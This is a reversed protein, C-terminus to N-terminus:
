LEWGIASKLVYDTTGADTAPQNDFNLKFELKFYLDFPLEYKGTFTHDVRWRGSETFSPYVIADAYLSLDGIDYLNLETGFYGEWSSNDPTENSFDEINRNFGARVSWYANNTRFLFKGM